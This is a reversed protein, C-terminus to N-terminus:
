QEGGTIAVQVLEGEVALALARAIAAGLTSRGALVVTVERERDAPTLRSRLGALQKQADRVVPPEPKRSACLESFLDRMKIGAAACIAEVACGAFCHLLVRGGDGQRISLSASRDAHAPCRAMWGAGSRQVGRFQELITEINM